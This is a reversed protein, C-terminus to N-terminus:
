RTQSAGCVGHHGVGKKQGTKNRFACDGSLVSQVGM